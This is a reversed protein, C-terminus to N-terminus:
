ALNEKYKLWDYIRILRKLDSNNKLIDKERLLEKLYAELIELDIKNKELMCIETYTKKFTPSEIVDKLTRNKPYSKKRRILSNNLFKDINDYTLAYKKVTGYVEKDYSKLYKFIPLGNTINDKNSISNKIKSIYM